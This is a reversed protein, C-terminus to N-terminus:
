HVVPGRSARRAVAHGRLPAPVGGAMAAREGCARCLAWYAYVGRWGVRHVVLRRGHRGCVHCRGRARLEVLKRLPWDYTDLLLHLSLGIALPRLAPRAAALAWIPPLVLMPRHIWSRLSGYRPRTDGKGQGRHRYRDYRLAGVVSWDGTQSGYLLLHDVDVMTGAIVLLAARAPQRAYLALGLAASTLLHTRFRM